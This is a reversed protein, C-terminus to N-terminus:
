LLTRKRYDSVFSYYMETLHESHKFGQSLKLRIALLCFTDKTGEIINFTKPTSEGSLRKIRM